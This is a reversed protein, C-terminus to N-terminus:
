KCSDCTFFILHKRKRLNGLDVALRKTFVADHHTFNGFNRGWVPFMELSTSCLSTPELSHCFSTIQPSLLPRKYVQGPHITTHGQPYLQPPASTLRTKRTGSLTFGDELNFDSMTERNQHSSLCCTPPLM